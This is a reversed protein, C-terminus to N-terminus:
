WELINKTGTINTEYYIDPNEISPRVGAYAALHIIATITNDKFITDLLHTDLISGTILKFNSNKKAEKLNNEKISPSYYNNFSDIGIISENALLLTDVLHSGIFGAAGTILITM